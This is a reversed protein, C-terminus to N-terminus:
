SPYADRSPSGSPPRNRMSRWGGSVDPPQHNPIHAHLLGGTSDRGSSGKGARARPSVERPDARRSRARAPRQDQAGRSRLHSGRCLRGLYMGEHDACSSPASERHSSRQAERTAVYRVRGFRLVPGMHLSRRCASRDSNGHRWGGTRTHLVWSPAPLACAIRSTKSPAGRASKEGSLRLALVLPTRGM